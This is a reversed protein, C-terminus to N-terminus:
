ACARQLTAGVEEAESVIESALAGKLFTRTIWGTGTLRLELRIPTGDALEAQAQWGATDAHDVIIGRFSGGHLHPLHEWDLANEILREM